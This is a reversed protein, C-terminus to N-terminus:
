QKPAPAPPIFLQHLADLHEQGAREQELKFHQDYKQMRVFGFNDRTIEYVPYYRSKGFTAMRPGMYVTYSDTSPSDGIQSRGNAILIAETEQEHGGFKTLFPISRQVVHRTETATIISFNQTGTVIEVTEPGGRNNLVKESLEKMKHGEPKLGHIFELIEIATKTGAREQLCGIYEEIFPLMIRNEIESNIERTSVIQKISERLAQVLKPKNYAVGETEQGTEIAFECGEETRHLSILPLLTDDGIKYGIHIINSDLKKVTDKVHNEATDFNLVTPEHSPIRSRIFGSKRPAPQTKRFADHVEESYPDDVWFALQKIGVVPYNAAPTVLRVTEAKKIKPVGAEDFSIEKRTCYADAVATKKVYWNDYSSVTPEGHRTRQALRIYSNTLKIQDQVLKRTALADFSCVEGGDMDIYTGISDFNVPLMNSAIAVVGSAAVLTEKQEDTEITAVEADASEVLSEESTAPLIASEAIEVEAIFAKATDGPLVEEIVGTDQALQESTPQMDYFSSSM